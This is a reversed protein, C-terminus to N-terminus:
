TKKPLPVSGGVLQTLALHLCRAYLSTDCRKSRLFLSESPRGSGSLVKQLAYSQHWPFAIKEHCKEATRRSPHTRGRRNEPKQLLFTGKGMQLSDREWGRKASACCSREQRMEEPSRPQLGSSLEAGPEWGCLM